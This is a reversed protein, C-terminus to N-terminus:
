RVPELLDGEVGSYLSLLFLHRPLTGVKLMQQVADKSSSSSGSTAAHGGMSAVGSGVGFILTRGAARLDVAGKGAAVSDQPSVAQRLDAVAAIHVAM